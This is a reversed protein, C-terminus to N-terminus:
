KTAKEGLPTEKVGIKQGRAHEKSRVARMPDTWIGTTGVYRWKEGGEVRGAGGEGGGFVQGERGVLERGFGGRDWVGGLWSPGAGGAITGRRWRGGRRSVLGALALFADVFIIM